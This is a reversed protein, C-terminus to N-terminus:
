EILDVAAGAPVLARTSPTYADPADAYRISPLVRNLKKEVTAANYGPLFCAPSNM